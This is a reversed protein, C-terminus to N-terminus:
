ETVRSPRGSQRTLEDFQLSISIIVFALISRRLVRMVSAEIETIANAITSPHPPITSLSLGLELPLGVRDLRATEPPEPM